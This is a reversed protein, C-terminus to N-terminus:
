NQCSNEDWMALTHSLVPNFRCQYPLSLRQHYSDLAISRPLSLPPHHCRLSLIVAPLLHAFHTHSTPPLPIDSQSRNTTLTSDNVNTVMRAVSTSKPMSGPTVGPRTMSSRPSPSPSTPSTSTNIKLALGLITAVQEDRLDINLSHKARPSKGGFFTQMMLGRLRGQDSDRIILGGLSIVSKGNYWLEIEGNAEGADNLLVRMAVTGRDGSTFSFAGRGVSNGFDPNCESYPPVHCQAENAEFGPITFPPLYSYVEGM